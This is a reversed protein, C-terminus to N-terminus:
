KSGDLPVLIDHINGCEVCCCKHPKMPRGVTYSVHKDSASAFLSIYESPYNGVWEMGSVNKYLRWIGVKLAEAEIM